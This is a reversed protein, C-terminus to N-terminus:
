MGSMHIYYTNFTCLLPMHLQLHREFPYPKVQRCGSVAIPTYLSEV